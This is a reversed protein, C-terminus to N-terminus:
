YGTTYGSICTWHSCTGAFTNRIQLYNMLFGGDFASSKCCYAGGITGQTYFQELATGTSGYKQLPFQFNGQPHPVFFSFYMRMGLHYQGYENYHAVDAMESIFDDTNVLGISPSQKDVEQQALRIQQRHTWIPNDQIRGLVVPVQADDACGASHVDHRFNAIFTSLNVKYNAAAHSDLADTEGQMFFLGAVRLRVANKRSHYANHILTLLQGYLRGSPSWNDKTAHAALPTDAVALKVIYHDHPPQSHLLSAFALEPGFRKAAAAPSDTAKKFGFGPQAVQWSAYSPWHINYKKSEAGDDKGNIWVHHGHIGYIKVNTYISNAQVLNKAGTTYDDVSALGAANSQGAIVYLQREPISPHVAPCHLAIATSGQFIITLTFIHKWFTKM